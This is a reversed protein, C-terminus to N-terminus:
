FLKMTKYGGTTAIQALKSIDYLRCASALTLIEESLDGNNEPVFIDSINDTGISVNIGAELMEPVQAISNHVPATKDKLQKMSLAAKPCVTVNTGTDAIKKTFEKDIKKRRVHLQFRMFLRLKAMGKTRKVEEFFLDKFPFSTTM